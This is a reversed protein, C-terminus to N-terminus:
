LSKGPLGGGTLREHGLISLKRSPLDKRQGKCDQTRRGGGCIDTKERKHNKGRPLREDVTELAWVDTKKDGKIGKRRKKRRGESLLNKLV